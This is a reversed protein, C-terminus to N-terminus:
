KMFEAVIALVGGVFVFGWGWLTFRDRIEERRDLEGRAERALNKREWRKKSKPAVAQKELREKDKQWLFMSSAGIAGLLSGIAILFLVFIGM